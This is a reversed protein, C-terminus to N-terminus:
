YDLENSEHLMRYCFVLDSVKEIYGKFDKFLNQATKSLYTDWFLNQVNQFM